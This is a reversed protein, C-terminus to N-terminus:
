LNIQLSVEFIDSDSEITLEHQDPYILDLRKKINNLGIETGEIEDVQTIITNIVRLHLTNHLVEIKIHISSESHSSVGYKFANEVFPIIVLPAIQLENIEGEFKYDVKTNDSIRLKQLDIYKEIYDIEQQIPVFDASAETLIYRMIDSLKIVAKPADDSKKLTMYYISNLTNFLFHPNIQSKLFLLEAKNKENEINRKLRQTEYLASLINISISIVLVILFLVLTTLRLRELVRNIDGPGRTINNPFLERIFEPIYIYVLLSLIIIGIYALVKKQSLFKPIFLFYNCYYFPILLVCSAMYHIPERAFYREINSISYIPLILLIGWAIIHITVKIAISSKIPSASSQKYINRM